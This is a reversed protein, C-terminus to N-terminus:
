RGGDNSVYKVVFVHSNDGEYTMMGGNLNVQDATGPASFSKGIPEDPIIINQQLIFAGDPNREYHYISVELEYEKNCSILRRRELQLSSGFPGGEFFPKGDEDNDRQTHTL